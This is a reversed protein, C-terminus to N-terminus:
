PLKEELIEVVGNRAAQLAVDKNLRVRRGVQSQGDAAEFGGRLVVVRLEDVGLPADDNPLKQAHVRGSNSSIESAMMPDLSIAHQLSPSPPRPPTTSPSGFANYGDRGAYHRIGIPPATGSSRSAPNLAREFNDILEPVCLAGGGVNPTPPMFSAVEREFGERRAENMAAVIDDHRVAVNRAASLFEAAAGRYQTLHTGWRRARETANAVVLQDRLPGEALNIKELRINARDLLREIKDLVADSEDDLLAQQRQQNLAKIEALTGARAQELETLAVALSPAEAAHGNLKKLISKIM